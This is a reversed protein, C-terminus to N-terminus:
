YVYIHIQESSNKKFENTYQIFAYISVPLTLPESELLEKLDKHQTEPPNVFAAQENTLPPLKITVNENHIRYNKPSM